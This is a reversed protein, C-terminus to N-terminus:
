LSVSMLLSSAIQLRVPLRGNVSMRWALADRRAISAPPNAIAAVVKKAVFPLARAAKPQVHSLLRIPKVGTAMASPEPGMGLM